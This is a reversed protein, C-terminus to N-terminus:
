AGGGTESTLPVVQGGPRCRGSRARVGSSGGQGMQEILTKLTGQSVTGEAYLAVALTTAGSAQQTVYRALCDSPVVDFGIGPLLMVGAAEAEENRNALNRFVDMEGTLDLYHTSTDLCAEVMPPGTHVFPGACHLVAPVEELVSRLRMPDSLSVVRTSLGLREGMTNLQAADRGALIPQLGRDVAEQAILCGTYGYAGYLLM